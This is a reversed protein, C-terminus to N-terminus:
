RIPIEVRRGAAMKMAEAFSRGNGVAVPQYPMPPSNLDGITFENPVDGMVGAFFQAQQESFPFVPYMAYGNIGNNLATRSVTSSVSFVAAIAHYNRLFYLEAAERDDEIRFGQLQLREAEKTENPHPRYILAYGSFNRRLYDLCRNLREVYVEPSVNHILLFPTGFFIVHRSKGNGNKDTVQPLDRLEAVSPFKAGIIKPNDSVDNGGNNMVVIRQYLSDPDKQLREVRVGDGGPNIRPKFHLTRNLGAMPEVIRNQLWGSTTFRYRTREGVRTLDRYVKEAVCLVKAVQPHASITANSITLIGGVCVILDRGNDIPLQAIAERRAASERYLRPLDRLGRCTNVRSFAHIGDFQGAYPRWHAREWWRSEERLLHVGDPFEARLAQATAIATPLRDPRSIVIWARGEGNM